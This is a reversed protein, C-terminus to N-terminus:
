IVGRERLHDICDNWGNRFQSECGTERVTIKLLRVEDVTLRAPQPTALDKIHALLGEIAEAGEHLVTHPWKIKAPKGVAAARLADAKSQAYEVTLSNIWQDIEPMPPLNNNTM